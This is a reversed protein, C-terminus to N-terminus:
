HVSNLLAFASENFCWHFSCCRLVTINEKLVSGKQSFELKDKPKGNKAAKFDTTSTDKIHQGFVATGNFSLVYKPM